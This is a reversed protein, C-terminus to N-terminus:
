ERNLNLVAPSMGNDSLVAMQLESWLDETFMRANRTSLFGGMNIQMQKQDPSQNFILLIELQTCVFEVLVDDETGSYEVIKENIWPKFAEINVKKLDIQ